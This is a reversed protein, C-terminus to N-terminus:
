GGSQMMDVIEAAGFVIICGVVFYGVVRLDVYGFLFAFGIIVAAIIAILRAINGTFADVINQLINEAGGLAQAAAPEVLVVSFVVALLALPLANRLTWSKM